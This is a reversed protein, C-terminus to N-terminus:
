KEIEKIKTIAHGAFGEADAQKRAIRAAENSDSASVTVVYEVRRRIGNKTRSMSTPKLTVDFM